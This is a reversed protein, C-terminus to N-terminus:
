QWGLVDAQPPGHCVIVNVELESLITDNRSELWALWPPGFTYASKSSRVKSVVGTGTIGLGSAVNQASKLAPVGEPM